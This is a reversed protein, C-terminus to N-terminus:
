RDNVCLVCYRQKLPTINIVMFVMEQENIYQALKLTAPQDYFKGIDQRLTKNSPKDFNGLGGKWM